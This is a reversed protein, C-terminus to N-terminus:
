PREPTLASICTGIRTSFWLLLVVSVYVDIM